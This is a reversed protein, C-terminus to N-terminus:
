EFGLAFTAYLTRIATGAPLGAASSTTSNDGLIMTRSGLLGDRPCLDDEDRLPNQHHFSSAPEAERYKNFLQLYFSVLEQSFTLYQFSKCYQLYKSLFASSDVRPYAATPFLDRAILAIHKFSRYLM